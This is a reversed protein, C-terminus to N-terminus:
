WLQVVRNFQIAYPQVADLHSTPASWVLFPAKSVDTWVHKKLAGM